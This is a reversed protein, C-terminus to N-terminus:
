RGNEAVEQVCAMCLLGSTLADPSCEAIDEIVNLLANGEGHEKAPNRTVYEPTYVRILEKFRPVSDTDGRRLAIDKAAQVAEKGKDAPFYRSHPLNDNYFYDVFLGTGGHNHGLGFTTIGYMPESTESYLTGNVILCKDMDASLRKLITEKNPNQGDFCERVYYCSGHIHWWKLAELPTDFQRDDSPSCIDNMKTKYWFKNNYRYIKGKGGYSLDEFSLILQDFDAEAIEASVTDETRKYRPKRCRPPIYSVDYTIHTEINM